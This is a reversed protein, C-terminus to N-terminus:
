PAIPRGHLLPTAVPAATGVLETVSNANAVWLNGSRDIAVGFRLSTLLGGAAFGTAPSLAAGNNDLESVDNDADNLVWVNNASDIAIGEPNSTLGIGGGTVTGLAVTPPATNALKTVSGTNTVWCDGNNDLALAFQFRQGGGQVSTVSVNSTGNDVVRAVGGSGTHSVWIINPSVTSDAILDFAGQAKTSIVFRPTGSTTTVTVDDKPNGGQAWNSVWVQGFSDLAIGSPNTYTASSGFPGAVTHGTSDMAEVTNGIQNTIWINGTADISIGFPDDLTGALSYGGSPSLEVGAPSLESITNSTGNTIWLDGAQDIAIFDIGSLDGPNYNLAVLWDNPAATLVPTYPLAVPVHALLGFITAVNQAPGLAIDLAAELTNTPASGGTPVPVSAFLTGCNSYPSPANVCYVLIDALTNLTAPSNLGKSLTAAASGHAINVLNAGLTAGANTIGIYRATGPLGNAGLLMPNSQDFFQAFAYAAAVTSLENIVVGSPLHNCPGLMAILLIDSNPGNGADGGSATIFLQSAAHACTFTSISFNGSSNSTTTALVTSSSKGSTGAEALVISAGSIPKRGGIVRANLLSQPNGPESTVTMMERSNCGGIIFVFASVISSVTLISLPNISRDSRM